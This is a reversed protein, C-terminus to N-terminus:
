IGIINVNKYQNESLVEAFIGIVIAQKAVLKEAWSHQLLLYSTVVVLFKIQTLLNWDFGQCSKKHQNFTRHPIFTHSLKWDILWDNYIESGM